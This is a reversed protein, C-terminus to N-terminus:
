RPTPIVSSNTSAPFCAIDRKVIPSMFGYPIMQSANSMQLLADEFEFNEQEMLIESNNERQILQVVPDPSQDSRESWLSLGRNYDNNTTTTTSPLENIVFNADLSPRRQHQQQQNENDNNSVEDSTNINPLTFNPGHSTRLPNGSIRNEAESASFPRKTVDKEM